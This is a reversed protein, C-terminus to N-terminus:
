KVPPSRRRDYPASLSGSAVIGGEVCRCLPRSGETGIRGRQDGRSYYGVGSSRPFSRQSVNVLVRGDLRTSSAVPVQTDFSGSRHATERPVSALSEPSKCKRSV